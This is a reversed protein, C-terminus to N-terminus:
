KSDFEKKREFFQHLFYLFPNWLSGCLANLDLASKVLMPITKHIQLWLLLSLPLYSLSICAVLALCFKLLRKEKDLIQILRKNAELFRQPENGRINQPGISDSNITSLTIGSGREVSTQEEDQQLNRRKSNSKLNHDNKTIRNSKRYLFFISCYLYVPTLTSMIIVIQLLYIYGYNKTFTQLLSGGCVVVVGAIWTSFATVYIRTKTILTRYQLLWKVAIWRDIPILIAIFLSGCMNGYFLSVFIVALTEGSKCHM